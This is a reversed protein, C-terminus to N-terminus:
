ETFFVQVYKYASLLSITIMGLLLPVSLYYLPTYLTAGIVAQIYIIQLFTKYQAWRNVGIFVGREYAILRLVLVVMERALVIFAVYYHIKHLWVLPLLLAMIWLKDALPDLLTGLFTGQNYTRAWYGDLFDTISVLAVAGMLAVLASPTPVNLVHVVIWPFFLSAILRIYTLILPINM